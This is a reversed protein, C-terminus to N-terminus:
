VEKKLITLPSKRNRNWLELDFWDPADDRNNRNVALTLKALANGSDFYHVEPDKGLRGVLNIQNLNLTNM